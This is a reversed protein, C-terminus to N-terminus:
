ITDLVDLTIVLWARVDKAATVTGTKVGLIDGAAFAIPSAYLAQVNAANVTLLGATQTTGGITPGLQFNSSAECGVLMGVVEGACPMQVMAEGGVAGIFPLATTGSVSGEVLAFPGLLQLSFQGTKSVLPAVM